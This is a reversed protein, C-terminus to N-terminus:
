PVCWAEGGALARAVLRGRSATYGAIPHLTSSEGQRVARELPAGMVTLDRGGNPAGTTGVLIRARSDNSYITGSRIDVVLVAPIVIRFTLTASAAGEARQVSSGAFGSASALAATLAVALWPMHGSMHQFM